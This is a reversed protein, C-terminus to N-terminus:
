PGLFRLIDEDDEEILRDEEMMKLADIQQQRTLGDFMQLQSRDFPAGEERLRRERAYESQILRRLYNAGGQVPPPPEPPPFPGITIGDRQGLSLPINSALRWDFFAFPAQVVVVPVLVAINPPSTEPTSPAIREALPWDLQAFPATVVVVTTLVANNPPSTEPASPRTRAALPWDDQGFPAATTPVATNPPPRDPALLPIREALPWDFQSFPLAQQLQRPLDNVREWDRALPSDVRDPPPWDVQGFPAASKPALNNPPPEEPALLPVREALPWDFQAFPATVIVVTTLVANNLLPTGPALLPVREALPWDFQSFPLAQQRQRPLDNVREWDRAIPSDVRDPLPWDFVNFPLVKFAAIPLARAEVLEPRAQQRTDPLPWDTQHFPPAVVAVVTLLALNRPIFERASPSDRPLAGRSVYPFRFVFAM